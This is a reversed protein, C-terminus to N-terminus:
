TYSLCLLFFELACSNWPKNVSLKWSTELNPFHVWHVLKSVLSTLTIKCKHNSTCQTWKGFKSVAQSGCTFLSHLRKHVATTQATLTALTSCGGSTAHASYPWMWRRNIHLDNSAVIDSSALQQIWQGSSPPQGSNVSYEPTAIASCIIHVETPVHLLTWLKTFDWKQSHINISFGSVTCGSLKCPSHNPSM